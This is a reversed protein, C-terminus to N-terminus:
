HPRVFTIVRGDGKRPDEPPFKLQLSKRDKALVIYVPGTWRDGVSFGIGHDKNNEVTSLLRLPPHDDPMDLKVGADKYITLTASGDAQQWQGQLQMMLNDDVPDDMGMCGSVGLALVAVVLMRLLKM